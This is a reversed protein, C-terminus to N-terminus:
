SPCTAYNPIWYKITEAALAGNATCNTATGLNQYFLGAGYQVWKVHGDVFAINAGGFHGGYGATHNASYSAIVGNAYNTGTGSIDLDPPDFYARAWGGGDTSPHPITVMSGVNSSSMVDDLLIKESSNPISAILQGSPIVSYSSFQTWDTV